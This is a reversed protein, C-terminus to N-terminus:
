NNYYFHSVDIYGDTLVKNYLETAMVDSTCDVTYLEDYVTTILLLHSRESHTVRKCLDIHNDFKVRM